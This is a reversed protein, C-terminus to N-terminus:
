GIREFELNWDNVLYGEKEKFLITILKNESSSRLVLFVDNWYLMGAVNFDKDYITLGLAKRMPGSTPKLLRWVGGVKLIDDM